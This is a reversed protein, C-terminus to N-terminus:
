CESEAMGGTKCTKEKHQLFLVLKTEGGSEKQVHDNEEDEEPWELLIRTTLDCDGCTLPCNQGLCGAM